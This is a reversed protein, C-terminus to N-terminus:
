NDTNKLSMITTFIVLCDFINKHTYQMNRKNSMDLDFKEFLKQLTKFSQERFKRQYEFIYDNVNKM